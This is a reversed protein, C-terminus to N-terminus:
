ARSWQPVEPYRPDVNPVTLWVDCCAACRQCLESCIDKQTINIEM